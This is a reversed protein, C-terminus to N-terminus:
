PVHPSGSVGLIWGEEDVIGSPEHLEPRFWDALSGGTDAASLAFATTTVQEADRVLPQAASRPTGTTFMTPWVEAIVVGGPEIQPAVLGTTFPWVGIRGPDRARLQELIPLLTLTQSGVSGAGLLQWCSAPRLGGFRLSREARRFEALPGPSPKTTALHAGAQTPPCGWFPGRDQGARRNLESAVEFRNNRNHADDTSLEAILRWTARWPTGALGLQAASGAPYGLSADVGIMLRLDASRDILDVLESHALHRTAPNSLQVTRDATLDAIWISDTGTAPTNRASWDVVVYRDFL